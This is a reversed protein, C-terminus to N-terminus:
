EQPKQAIFAPQRGAFLWGCAAGLLPMGVLILLLNALPINGLESIGDGNPAGSFFALCALYAAAIGMVAGIFALTGATAATLTRRTGSSAGTASLTRLDSAAESRILGVTMALIALALLIGVVTAWDIVQTSSPSDSKTEVTMGLTSATLRASNIQTVTLPHNTLIMWGALSTQLGLTKVAHESVVTNPASTGSPLAGITQMPPNAINGGPGNSGNGPGANGSNPGYSLDMNAVSALGPRMTLIDARPNVDSASIGFAHLLQPTGVYLQGSFNRGAGQHVLGVDPSFLEIVNHSGLAAAIANTKAVMAPTSPQPTPGGGKANLNLSPRGEGNPSVIVAGPPPAQPTYVILQNNALNPGAYDLVNGYRAAAAVCVTTAILVGLSIAGLASGSRARYRSLDRLAMRVALPTRRAAVAIAALALPALFIIGITLVVFGLILEPAGGGNGKSQGAYFLLFYAGVTLLIGPVASRHLQRPPAPRGSLATVVPIRTVARAPRASALWTTVVALAMAALIVGWPLQFTGILHHSAQEVHPRYAIWAVLGLAAGVATGVVGVVLGNAQVVLSINKDTAGLAGLMGISRMRRQALVTFGGVAVLGILLMGLTAILIVFIEPNFGGNLTNPPTQVNLQKLSAFQANSADFLLTVQGSAGPQGPTILAFEDLLNQPNQVIGVVHRTVGAEHWVSGVHLGFASAVGATVAVEGTTRPFRGSVVGLMAKGYTGDSNQARLEYTAISGPIPLTTNEIVDVPGVKQELAAITSALKPDSAPLQVMADATGFGTKAPTPTNVAVGAGVVTIAVAVIVLALVLLQQRWERFFLRWAWRVVARRAPVGGDGSGMDVPPRDLTLTM